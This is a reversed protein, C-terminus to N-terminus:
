WAPGIRKEQWADCIERFTEKLDKTIKWTPYHAYIKSLNSIYCIHDGKRNKDVFEYSMKKGSIEEILSFAEL